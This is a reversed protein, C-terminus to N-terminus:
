MIGSIDPSAQPFAEPIRARAPKLWKLPVLVRAIGDNGSRREWRERHVLKVASERGIGRIKRIQDYTLWRGEGSNEPFAEREDRDM